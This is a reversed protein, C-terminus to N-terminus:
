LMSVLWLRTKESGQERNGPGRERTRPGQKGTRPGQDRTGTGQDRNGSGQKQPVGVGEGTSFRKEAGRNSTVDVLDIAQM